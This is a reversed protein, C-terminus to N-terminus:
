RGIKNVLGAFQRPNSAKLDHRLESSAAHANNVLRPLEFKVPMNRDLHDKRAPASGGNLKRSKPDFGFGDGTEVMGVDYPDVFDAHMFSTGITRQFKGIAAIESGSGHISNARGALGGFKDPIQRLSHLHRVIAPDQM